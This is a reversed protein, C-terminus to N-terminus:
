VKLTRETESLKDNRPVRNRRIGLFHSPSSLAIGLIVLPRVGPTAVTLRTSSLLPPAVGFSPPHPPLHSRTSPNGRELASLHTDTPPPEQLQLNRAAHNAAASLGPSPTQTEAKAMLDRPGGGGFALLPRPSGTTPRQGRCHSQQGYGLPPPLGRGHGTSLLPPTSSGNARDGGM